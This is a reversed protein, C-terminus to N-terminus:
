WLSVKCLLQLMYQGNFKWIWWKRKMVTSQRSEYYEDVNVSGPLRIKPQPVLCKVASRSNKFLYQVTNICWFMFHIKGSILYPYFWLLLFVQSEGSWRRVKTQCNQFMRWCIWPKLRFSISWYLLIQSISLPKSCRCMFICCNIIVCVFSVDIYM